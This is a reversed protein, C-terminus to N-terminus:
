KSTELLIKLQNRGRHLLVNVRAIPIKMVEAIESPGLHSQLNLLLPTRYKESLHPLARQIQAERERRESVREERGDSFDQYWFTEPAVLELPRRKRRRLENLMLRRAIFFLYTSFKADPRYRPAAVYVRHFVKMTVDEADQLNGLSRYLFSILPVRWRAVIPEMARSDGRGCRLILDEDSPFVVPDPDEAPPPQSMSPIMFVISPQNLEGDLNFGQPNGRSEFSKEFQSQFILIL